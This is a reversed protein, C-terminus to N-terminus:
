MYFSTAYTRVTHHEFRYYTTEAVIYKETCKTELYVKVSQVAFWDTFQRSEGSEADVDFIELSILKGDITYDADEAHLENLVNTINKLESSVSYKTM